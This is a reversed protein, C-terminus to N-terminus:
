DWETTEKHINHRLEAMGDGSTVVAGTEQFGDVPSTISIVFTKTDDGQEVIQNPSRSRTISHPLQQMCTNANALVAVVGPGTFRSATVVELKGEMFASSGSPRSERGM